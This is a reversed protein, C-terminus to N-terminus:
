TLRVLIFGLNSRGFNHFSVIFSKIKRGIEIGSFLDLHSLYLGIICYFVLRTPINDLHEMMIYSTFLWIGFLSVVAYIPTSSIRLFLQTIQHIKIIRKITLISLLFVDGFLFLIYKDDYIIWVIYVTSLVGTEVVKKKFSGEVKWKQVNIFTWIQFALKSKLKKVKKYFLFLILIKYLINVLLLYRLVNLKYINFYRVCYLAVV